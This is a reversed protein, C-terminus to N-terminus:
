QMQPVPGSGKGVGSSASHQHEDIKLILVGLICAILSGLLVAFRATDIFSQESFALGSMLFSVTFGIGCLQSVGFLQMPRTNNGVRLGAMSCLKTAIMIGLPKGVVLGIAVGLFLPTTLTDASVEHLPIGMAFFAFLPLAILASIPSLKRRYREARPSKEQHIPLAPTLLGIAVGSLTPHIGALIMAYWAGIGVAILLPWFPKRMRILLFWAFLCAILALLAWLSSPHSYVIAILLIGIVDDVTALTLLFARIAPQVHKSALSLVTVSFAIDTATPITWGQATSPSSFNIAIFLLSPVIVGCIAGIIPTAANRPNKLFGSAMEQRLDLGIVLFFLTLLGDQVWQSISLDLHPLPLNTAFDSILRYIQSTGPINCVLFGIVGMFLMLLGSRKENNAFAKIRRIMGMVTQPISSM